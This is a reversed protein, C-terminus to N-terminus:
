LHHPAKAGRPEPAALRLPMFEQGDGTFYRSFGEYYHLRMVQIAVIGGELVIVFLNGAVIMAAQGVGHLMDALTFIAISLAVHNLSFAAVRLFSLTNSVYSLITELTDITVVLLREVPPEHQHGWCHWALALLSGTSLLLPLTAIGDGRSVGLALAILALYFTLNFVGHHGFLAESWQGLALRNYIALISALTIFIVGWGLALSLLHLPDHLPSMWLAPLLQESGFVSGFMLGFGMSSCGALVGFLWFRGLRPRFLLAALAIVAGQGLDGFMSGFMLLFTIAFLPTPDVEGYEPIGYQRVLLSFPALLRSRNPVTPVLRREEPLPDRSGLDFPHSLTARLTQELGRLARAPVWGALYILPGSGRLVPDLTVLPEALWLTERAARLRERFGSGWRELTQKAAAREEAIRARQAELDRRREAPERDLDRPIPLSQFGAANLVAQLSGEREEAPGVIVVHTQEDRNMYPHLLYGALGLADQLQRLNERPVLGVHFDLFRTKRRLISLDIALDSFNALAALQERALRDEDDLRHLEEEHSSAKTWLEGLWTNLAELEAFEVVRPQLAPPASEDEALILRALKDFRGRAQLFTDRYAHDAREGLRSEAPPRPDPHFCQTRALALSAEALDENLILLRVHKMPTPRLM